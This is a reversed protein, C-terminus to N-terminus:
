KRPLMKKEIFIKQNKEAFTKTSEIRFSTYTRLFCKELLVNKTHVNFFIHVPKCYVYFTCAINLPNFEGHFHEMEEFAQLFRKAFYLYLYRNYFNYLICNSYAKLLSFLNWPLEIFFLHQRLHCLQM